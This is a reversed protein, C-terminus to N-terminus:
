TPRTLTRPGSPGADSGNSPTPSPPLESGTRASLERTRKFEEIAKEVVSPGAAPASTGTHRARMPSRRKPKPAPRASAPPDGAGEATANSSAANKAAMAKVVASDARLPALSDLAGQEAAAEKEAREESITEWMAGGREKLDSDRGTKVNQGRPTFMGAGSKKFNM